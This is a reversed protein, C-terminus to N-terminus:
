RAGSTTSRPRSRGARRRRSRSCATTEAFNVSVREEITEVSLPDDPDALDVDRSARLEALRGEPTEIETRPAFPAQLGFRPDGSISLVRVVGDPMRRAFEFERFPEHRDLRERHAAWGADDPSESPLEWPAKGIVGRGMEASLYGPGHVLQTFRHAEDTEWFFDRLSPSTTVDCTSVNAM